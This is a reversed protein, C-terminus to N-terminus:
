KGGRARLAKRAKWDRLDVVNGKAPAPAPYLLAVALCLAAYPVVCFYPMGDFNLVASVDRESACFSTIPPASYRSCISFTVTPKSRLYDPIAVGEEKPYFTLFFEDGRDWADQIALRLEKPSIPSTM